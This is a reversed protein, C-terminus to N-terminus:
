KLSDDYVDNFKINKKKCLNLYILNKYLCLQINDETM